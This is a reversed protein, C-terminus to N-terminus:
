VDYWVGESPVIGGIGERELEKCAPKTNERHTLPPFADDFHDLMVTKPRFLRLFRRMYRNMHARGQYPFVLLDAGTPYVTDADAGASGLVMVTKEGDTIELAYIDDGIKYRKLSKLFAITGFFHAWSRPSFFVRLVTAADFKCHRSQYTRVTLEGVRHLEGAGLPLMASTDLGNEKAHCIGNESVYVAKVGCKTWAGIDGFHDIHPHTIFIADAATEAVPVPPLKKNRGRLYPDILIRTTESEILLTATGHWQIKM